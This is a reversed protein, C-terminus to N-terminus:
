SLAVHDLHTNRVPTHNLSLPIFVPYQYITVYIGAFAAATQKRVQGHLLLKFSDAIGVHLFLKIGFHLTGHGHAETVLQMPMAHHLYPKSRPVIDIHLLNLNYCKMAAQDHHSKETRQTMAAMAFASVNMMCPRNSVESKLTYLRANPTSSAWSSSRQTAHLRVPLWKTASTPSFTKLFVPIQSIHLFTKYLLKLVTSSLLRRTHSQGISPKWYGLAEQTDTACRMTQIEPPFRIKAFGFSNCHFPIRQRHGTTSRPLKSCTDKRVTHPRLIIKRHTQKNWKATEPPPKALTTQASHRM